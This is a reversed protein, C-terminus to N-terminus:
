TVRKLLSETAEYSLSELWNLLTKKCEYTLLRYINLKHNVVNYVFTSQASYQREAFASRVPCTPAVHKRRNTLKNKDLPLNSHLDLLLRLIYLKRVSLLGCLKYLDTTPYRFQKFYMVKILSRQARELDLFKTKTAGGWVPICYAIVSQALAIYIKNLLTPSMLHRLKKFIWILKRVRGTILEIHSHWSLRQDVMIGLYKICAVKQIVPCSCSHNSSDACGHIKLQFEENPQTRVDHSFCIYNTKATNLTLLNSNLWRAIESLGPEAVSKVADWSHGSFVIATDDAYSFIQGGSNGLDCLPNIYILFLTPGLVSGQPVGYIVSEEDSIYNEIKVSQTRDHLYSELLALPTGRIGICELSRVLRPVSVTDFAKKLDLFVTLCKSGKDVNDVILKSLDKVAKQTSIGKRFGYQAPSLINFKNLYNILRNNILKEIIKSICPLVSIPRYNNVDDKDGIKHVPTVISRKFVRPFIGSNFCLNALKTILPVVFDRSRKLFGTPIGDWGAASNTDLSMLIDDVELNDTELLVFSTTFSNPLTPNTYQSGSSRLITEALSKGIEVFFHNVENVSATPDLAINLLNASSHKVSKFQTIENITSWLQKPNSASDEILKKNYLMKTKKILNTCFNRFRKFTIKLVLNYPEIKLKLQMKNRLRICRLVGSTMWPKLIRKNKHIIKTRTNTLIAKKIYEILLTSLTIPDNCTNFYSLDTKVLFKYATDYDFLKKYKIIKTVKNKLNKLGLVVMSHDTVTTQLVVVLASVLTKDLKLIVHDLCSDKRTPLCHGPLCGHTSLVNLYNLRNKCQNTNETEKVILNINIDGILTINKHLDITELHNNISEIFSDANAVSPSRYIGLITLESTYIQLGSAHSLNLETVQAQITNKIYAVVGDNQNFQRLTYYSMYNNLLPIPKNADLRCETLVIIDAEFKLQSLTIQLDDHNSSYISRINQTLITLDSNYQNITNALDDIDCLVSKAIEANDLENLLNLNSDM